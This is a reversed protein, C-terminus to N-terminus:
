ALRVSYKELMRSLARRSIGLIKSAATKNGACSIIVEEIHKKVVEKLLYPHDPKDRLKSIHEPLDRVRIFSEATMIAAHEVVNELERLNGPWDYSMILAQAPRSIGLVKKGTGDSFRELFHRILLPIDDKREKLPPVHIKFPTLRYFLDERFNGKKVEEELDRNTAAIIRCNAKRSNHDGVRRFEGSQLIRLLNSQSSLPLEGIEDLFVAGDAAAEFFGIKDQNAGTFSGKKHGFMESESLNEVLAGCDCVVFPKDANLSSLHLARAILEKGTGTSGMITVAKYYPAIRKILDFIDLMRPNRGVLGSFFTYNNKLRRELINNERRIAVMDAISDITEKLRAENVPLSFFACAGKALAEFEDGGDGFCIVEARPDIAKIDRVDHNKGQIIVLDYSNKAVLDSLSNGKGPMDTNHDGILAMISEYPENIALLIGLNINENKIPLKGEL